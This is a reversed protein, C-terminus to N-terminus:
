STSFHGNMGGMVEHEFTGEYRGRGQAVHGKTGGLVEHEFAGEYGGCV